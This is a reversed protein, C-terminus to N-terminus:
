WEASDALCGALVRIALRLERIEEDRQVVLKELRDISDPLWPEAIAAAVRRGEEDGTSDRVIDM